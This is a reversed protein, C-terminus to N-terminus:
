LRGLAEAKPRRKENWKQRLTTLDIGGRRSEGGQRLEAEEVGPSSHRNANLSSPSTQVKRGRANNKFGFAIEKRDLRKVSGRM